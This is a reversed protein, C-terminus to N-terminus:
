DSYEYFRVSPVSEDASTARHRPDSKNAICIISGIMHKMVPRMTRPYLTREGKKTHLLWGVDLSGAADDAM